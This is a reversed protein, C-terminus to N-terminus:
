SSHFSSVVRIERSIPSKTHIQDIYIKCFLLIIFFAYVIKFFQCCYQFFDIKTGCLAM